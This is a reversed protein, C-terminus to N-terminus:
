TIFNVVIFLLYTQMKEQYELLRSFVFTWYNFHFCILVGGESFFFLFFVGVVFMLFYIFFCFYAFADWFCM